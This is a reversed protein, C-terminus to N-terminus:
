ITLYFLLIQLATTIWNPHFKKSSREKMSILV